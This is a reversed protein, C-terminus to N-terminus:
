VVAEEYTRVEESTWVSLPMGSGLRECDGEAKRTSKMHDHGLVLASDLIRSYSALTSLDTSSWYADWPHTHIWLSFPITAGVPPSLRVQGATGIDVWIRGDRDFLVSVERSLADAVLWLQRWMSRSALAAITEKLVRSGLDGSDLASQVAHPDHLTPAVNTGAHMM